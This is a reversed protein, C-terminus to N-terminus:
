RWSIVWKRWDWRRIQIATQGRNLNKELVLVFSQPLRQTASGEPESRVAGNVGAGFVAKIVGGHCRGLLREFDDGAFDSLAFDAPQRRLRGVEQIQFEQWDAMMVIWFVAVLIELVADVADSGALVIGDQNTVADAVPHNVAQGRGM